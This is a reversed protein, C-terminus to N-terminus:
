SNDDQKKLVMKIVSGRGIIAMFFSVFSSPILLSACIYIQALMRLTIRKSPNGKLVEYLENKPWGMKNLISQVLGYISQEICFTGVRIIRLNNKDSVYKLSDMNFHYKHWPVDLHFWSEKFYHAESCAFNPVSLILLGRPSLLGTLSRLVINPDDMHELVHWLFILDFSGKELQISGLDNRLYTIRDRDIFRKTPYAPHEIGFCECGSDSFAKLLRGEACGVDLIKPRKDSRPILSLYYQVRMNMLKERVKQIIPLFKNSTTGYYLSTDHRNLDDDTPLPSTQALGCRTCQVIYFDSSTTRVPFLRKIRKAHCLPCTVSHTYNGLKIM